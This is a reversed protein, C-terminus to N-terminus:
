EEVPLRMLLTQPEAKFFRQYMKALAKDRVLWQIYPGTERDGNPGPDKAWDRIIRVIRERVENPIPCDLMYQHVTVIPKYYLISRDCLLHGVLLGDRLLAIVMLVPDDMIFAQQINRVLLYAEAQDEHEQCFRAIRGMVQPHWMWDQPQDRHLIHVDYDHQSSLPEAQAIGNSNTEWEHQRPPSEQLM